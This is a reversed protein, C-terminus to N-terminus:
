VDVNWRRGYRRFDAIAQLPANIAELQHLAQQFATADIVSPLTHITHLLQFYSEDQLTLLLEKFSTRISPMSDFNKIWYTQQIIPGVTMGEMEKAAHREYITVAQADFTHKITGNKTQYCFGYFTRSFNNQIVPDDEMQYRTKRLWEQLQYYGHEDLLKAEYAIQITGELLQLEGDHFHGDMTDAMERLLSYSSNNSPLKTFPELLRFFEAPYMQYLKKALKMKTENAIQEQMGAPVPTRRIHSVITTPYLQAQASQATFQYLQKADPMIRYTIADNQLYVCGYMLFEVDFCGLAAMRGVDAACRMDRNESYMDPM